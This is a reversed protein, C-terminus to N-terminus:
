RQMEEVAFGADVLIVRFLRDFGEDYRVPEFRSFTAAIGKNPIRAKGTRLSNRKLCDAIEAVFVYGNIAFHSGKAAEIYVAREKVTPNTNDIVFRQGTALCARLLEHERRRTRLMDLNLRVHTSFFRELYFSTKGSAQPGCFLVAEM